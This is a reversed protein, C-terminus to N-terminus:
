LQHTRVIAFAVLTLKQRVVLKELRHMLGSAAIGRGEAAFAALIQRTRRLRERLSMEAKYLEKVCAFATRYYNYDLIQLLRAKEPAGFAVAQVAEFSYRYNLLAQETIDPNYRRSNSGTDSEDVHYACQEVAAASRAHTLYRLCFVFDEGIRLDEPFRIKHDRLVSSQFRKNCPSGNRSRVFAELFASYDPAAALANPLIYDTIQGCKTIQEGFVLLDAEPRQSLVSFYDPSVTDDSDVFCTYEGQALVLGANRASSVGGNEKQLYVIQKYQAAYERCIKDSSDTSGDNVLILEAQGNMQTLLSDLCRGLTKEANYIPIIVSFLM